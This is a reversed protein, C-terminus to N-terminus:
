TSPPVPPMVKSESLETGSGDPAEDARTAKLGPYLDMLGGDSWDFPFPENYGEYTGGFHAPISTIPIEKKLEELFNYGNMSVKAITKPDMLGKCFYWLTNALWPTNVCYTKFLLEPFNDQCIAISTKMISKADSGLFEMGIGKLCRIGFTQVMIGYGQEPTCPPSGNYEALLARERKESVQELVMQKYQMTWNIWEVWQDITFEKMIKAPSYDFTEYFLLNGENDPADEAIIIQKSLNMLAQGNPFMNPTNLHELRIRERIEDANSDKRWKLYNGYMLIIKELEGHGRIFKMIGRDGIVEAFQGAAAIEEALAERVQALLETEKESWRNGQAISM